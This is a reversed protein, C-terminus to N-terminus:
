ELREPAWTGPPLLLFGGLPPLSTATPPIVPALAGPGQVYGVTGNVKMKRECKYHSLFVMLYTWVAVAHAHAGLGLAWRLLLSQSWLPQM